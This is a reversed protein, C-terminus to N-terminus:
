RQLVQVAADAATVLQCARVGCFVADLFHDKPDHVDHLLKLLNKAAAFNCVTAGKHGKSM